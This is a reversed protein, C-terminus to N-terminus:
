KLNVMIELVIILEINYIKNEELYKRGENIKKEIEERFRSGKIDWGIKKNYCKNYWKM